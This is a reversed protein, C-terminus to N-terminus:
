YATALRGIIQKRTNAPPTLNDKLLDEAEDLEGQPVLTFHFFVHEKLHNLFIVVKERPNTGRGAQEALYDGYRRKLNDTQGVYFIYSHDDLGGVRPAVVFLYIGSEAPIAIAPPDAFRIVQWAKGNYYESIRPTAWLEPHLEFSYKGLKHAMFQAVLPAGKKVEGYGAM